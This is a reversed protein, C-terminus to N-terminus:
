GPIHPNNGAAADIVVSQLLNTLGRRNTRIHGHVVRDTLRVPRDVASVVEHECHLAGPFVGLRELDLGRRQLVFAQFFVGDVRAVLDNM